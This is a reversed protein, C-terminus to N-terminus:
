LMRTPTVPNTPRTSPLCTPPVARCCGETGGLRGLLCVEAPVEGICNALIVTRMIWDFIKVRVLYILPKRVVNEASVEGDFHPSMPRWDGPDRNELM